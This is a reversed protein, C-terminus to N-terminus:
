RVGRIPHFPMGAQAMAAEIVEDSKQDFLQLLLDDLLRDAIAGCEEFVRALAMVQYDRRGADGGAYGTEKVVEIAVRFPPLLVISFRAKEFVARLGLPGDDWILLPASETAIKSRVALGTTFLEIDGACIARLMLSPTLRDDRDLHRVVVELDDLNGALPKLLLMTAAERGRKVLEAVLVPSLHHREVLNRRIDESV